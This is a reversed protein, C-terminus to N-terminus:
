NGTSEILQFLRVKASNWHRRVTKESVDLLGAIEENKLGAFFRLKVIEAKMPDEAALQDLSEHILVVKDRPAESAIEVEDVNVRQLEGGHRQRSKRRAQEVLIRRMAEAAASFFHGRGNWIKPGSRQVRLWAEHVLATAQLTQGPPVRAMRAKALSRLEAYILPLLEEAGASDGSEAENLLRTLDDSM